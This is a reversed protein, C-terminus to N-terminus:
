NFKVETAQQQRKKKEQLRICKLRFYSGIVSAALVGPDKGICHPSSPVAMVVSSPCPHPPPDFPLVM